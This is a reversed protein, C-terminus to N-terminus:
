KGWFNKNSMTIPNSAIAALKTTAKEKYLKQRCAAQNFESLPSFFNACSEIHSLGCHPEDDHGSIIMEEPDPFNPRLM